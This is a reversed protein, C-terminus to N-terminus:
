TSILYIAAPRLSCHNKYSLGIPDRLRGVGIGGTGACKLARAGKEKQTSIGKEPGASSPSFFFVDEFPEERRKEQRIEQNLGEPLLISRMENQHLTHQTQCKSGILFSSAGPSYLYIITTRLECTHYNGAARQSGADFGILGM